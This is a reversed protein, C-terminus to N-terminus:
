CSPAKHRLLKFAFEDLLSMTAVVKDHPLGAPIKQLILLIGSTPVSYSRFGNLLDAHETPNPLLPNPLLM